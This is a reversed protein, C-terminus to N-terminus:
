APQLDSHSSPFGGECKFGWDRVGQKSDQKSNSQGASVRKVVLASESKKKLSGGCWNGAVNMTLETENFLVVHALATERWTAHIIRKDGAM